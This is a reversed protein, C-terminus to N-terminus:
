HVVYTAMDWGIAYSVTEAILPYRADPLSEPPGVAESCRAGDHWLRALPEEPLHDRRDDPAIEPM